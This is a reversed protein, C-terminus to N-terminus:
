MLNLIDELKIIERNILCKVIGRIDIHRKKQTTECEELLQQKIYQIVDNYGKSNKSHILLNNIKHTFLRPVDLNDLNFLKIFVKLWYNEENDPNINDYHAIWSRLNYYRNGLLEDDLMKDITDRCVKFNDKYTSKEFGDKGQPGNSFIFQYTLYSISEAAIEGMGFYDDTLTFVDEEITKCINKIRKRRGNMDSANAANKFYNVILVKALTTDREGDKVELTNLQNWLYRLNSDVEDNLFPTYYRKNINQKGLSDVNWSDMDFPGFDLTDNIHSIDKTNNIFSVVQALNRFNYQAYHYDDAM